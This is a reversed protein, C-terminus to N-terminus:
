RLMWKLMFCLVAVAVIPPYVMYIGLGVLIRGIIHIIRGRGKLCIAALVFIVAIRLISTPTALSISIGAAKIKTFLFVMYAVALIVLATAIRILSSNLIHEAQIHQDTDPEYIREGIVIGDRNQRGIVFINKGETIVSGAADGYLIVRQMQNGNLPELLFSYRSKGVSFPLGKIVSNTWRKIIKEQNQTNRLNKVRGSYTQSRAAKKSEKGIQKM